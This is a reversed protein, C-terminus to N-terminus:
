TKPGSKPRELCDCGNLFIWSAELVSQQEVNGSAAEVGILGRFLMHTYLISTNLKSFNTQKLSNEAWCLIVSVIVLLNGVPMRQFIAATESACLSDLIAM